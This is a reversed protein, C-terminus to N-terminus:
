NTRKRTAPLALDVISTIRKPRENMQRRIFEIFLQAPPRPPAGRRWWVVLHDPPFLRDLPRTYLSAGELGRPYYPTVTIGLGLAVYRCATMSNDIRLALRLRDLVGARSLVARVEKAWFSTESDSLIWPHEVLDTARINRQKSLPHGAPAVLHWRRECLRETVVLPHSTPLPGHPVVALEVGGNAVLEEIEVNHRTLLSLQIQPHQRCFEGVVPAMEQNFLANSGGVVLCTPLGRRRDDFRERLTEIGAVLSGALEFFIRGEATPELQRGRREFLCAAFERELARVQQWVAPQSAQLARAAASFSKHQVCACFARLQGLRLEKYRHVSM